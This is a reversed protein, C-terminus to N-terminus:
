SKIIDIMEKVAEADIIDNVPSLGVMERAINVSEETIQCTPTIICFCVATKLTNAKIRFSHPSNRAPFIHVWRSDNDEFKLVWESGDSITLCKYNSCSSGCWHAFDPKSVVASEDLFVLIERGIDDIALGGSYVDTVSGGIHKLERLLNDDKLNGKFLGAYFSSFRKIYGLHHKLPCFLFPPYIEQTM